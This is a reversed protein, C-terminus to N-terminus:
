VLLNMTKLSVGLRERGGGHFVRAGESSLLGMLKAKSPHLIDKLGLSKKPLLVQVRDCASDCQAPTCPM